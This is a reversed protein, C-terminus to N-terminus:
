LKVGFLLLCVGSFVGGVFLWLLRSVMDNLRCTLLRMDDECDDVRKELVRLEGRLVLCERRLERCCVVLEDVRGREVELREM